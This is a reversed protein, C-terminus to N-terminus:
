EDLAQVVDEGYFQAIYKRQLPTLRRVSWVLLVFHPETPTTLLTMGAEEPTRDAKKINCTVCATVCNQWTNADERNAFRSQPIIHDRTLFERPRLESEHRGCYACRHRDRSFLFVNSVAKRFKRPVHVYKVLRIVAPCPVEANVSRIIRTDDVEVVEARGETVLRIARKLPMMALPEYSANLALCSKRSFNIFRGVTRHDEASFATTAFM